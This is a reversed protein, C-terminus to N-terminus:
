SLTAVYSFQYQASYFIILTYFYKTLTQASQLGDVMVLQPSAESGAVRGHGTLDAPTNLLVCTGGAVCWAANEARLDM